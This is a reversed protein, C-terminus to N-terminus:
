NSRIGNSMDVPVVPNMDTLVGQFYATTNAYQPPVTLFYRCFDGDADDTMLWPSGGAFGGVLRTIDHPPPIYQNASQPSALLFGPTGCGNKKLMFHVDLNWDGIAYLGADNGPAGQGYYTMSGAPAQPGFLAQAWSAWNTSGFWWTGNYVGNPYYIDFANESGPGPGAVTIGTNLNITPTNWRSLDQGFESGLIFEYGSDELDITIMWIYSSPLITPFGFSNPLGTFLFAAQQVGLNGWGTCTDFYYVSFTEGAPDRNNSGYSFTFGDIVEDALGTPSLPLEAWDLNIYGTEPSLWWAYLTNTNDWLTNSLRSREGLAINKTKRRTTKEMDLIGQAFTIGALLITLLAILSTRKM